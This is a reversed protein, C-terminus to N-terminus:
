LNLPKRSGVCLPKQFAFLWMGTLRRVERSKSLDHCFMAWRHALLRKPDTVFDHHNLKGSHGVTQSLLQNFHPVFNPVTAFRAPTSLQGACRWAIVPVDGSAVVLGSKNKIVYAPRNTAPFVLSRRAAM